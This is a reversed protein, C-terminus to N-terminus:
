RRWVNEEEMSTLYSKIKHLSEDKYKEVEIMSEFNLARIVHILDMDLISIWDGKSRSWYKFNDTMDAPIKSDEIVSQLKLLKKIKM